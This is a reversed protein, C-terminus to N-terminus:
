TLRQKYFSIVRAANWGCLLLLARWTDLLKAPPGASSHMCLTVFLGASAHRAGTVSRAANQFRVHATNWGSFAFAGFTVSFARLQQWRQVKELPQLTHVQHLALLPQPPPTGAPYQM